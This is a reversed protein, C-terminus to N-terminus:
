ARPPSLKSVAQSNGLAALVFLRTTRMWAAVIVSCQALIVTSSMAAWSAGSLRQRLMLLMLLLAMGLTCVLLYATLRRLLQRRKLARLFARPPFQLHADLLLEARAIEVLFHTMLAVLAALLWIITRLLAFSNADVYEEVQLEASVGLLLAFGFGLLYLLFASLHLWFWRGYDSLATGVLVRWPLKKPATFIAGAMATLLPALLLTCVWALALNVQVTAANQLYANRLAAIADLNLRESLESSYASFDLVFSLIAGLPSAVLLAPLLSALLWGLLLRLDFARASQAKIVEVISADSM